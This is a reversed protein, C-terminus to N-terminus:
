HLYILLVILIDQIIPFYKVITDCNIDKYRQNRNKKTKKNKNQKKNTKLKTELM